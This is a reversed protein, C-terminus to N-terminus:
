ESMSVFEIYEKPCEYFKRYRKKKNDYKNTKIWRKSTRSRVIACVTCKSNTLIYGSPKPNAREWTHAVDVFITPYPFDYKNTFNIFRRKVEIREIRGDPHHIELDGDDSFKSMDEIKKRIKIRKKIVKLNHKILKEQLWKAVIDVHKDSDKLDQVFSSDYKEYHNLDTM